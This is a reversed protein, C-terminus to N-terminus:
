KIEKTSEETLQGYFLGAVEEESLDNIDITLNNKGLTGYTKIDTKNFLAVTKANSACSLHLPGTDASVYIDCCSFFAGLIRLNKNSYELCNSNLKTLIDPSLIDIVTINNDLKLLEKHWRDWWEDPIKKDFRANRFLAVTKHNAPIKATELLKKLADNATQLEANTIKIDLPVNEKPLDIKFLKLLELPVSGSHTYLSEKIVTHSLKIFTKTNAFSAKYKSKVLSTVIESSLSGDSINLVLDYKKTQVIKIFKFLELPHLLLKRPIDIVEEVNPLPKLITGALKMGVIIDIKAHPIKEALENILPTLFILNGIRYNPRVILITRIESKDLFLESNQSPKSLLSYLIDKLQKRLKVHLPLKM